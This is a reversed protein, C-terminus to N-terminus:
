TSRGQPLCVVRFGVVLSAVVPRCHDRRASRCDRPPLDWSGGRLLRRGEDGDKNRQGDGAEQDDWASGDPPAGEYDSHWRDLCWEWVNGHMDYLGWDNAPFTKIVTTENRPRGKPGKFYSYTADYNALEPTITDGFAFPSITRARCAYEWQAESPLTYMLGTRQSLRQCFEMADLWRVGEVPRQDSEPRKGFRSPNPSLKRGWREGEREQWQAVVRWQEQTIPTQGMFFSALEVEHRPGEDAYRELEGDPSGMLFRGAPIEVLTLSTQPQLTEFFAWGQGEGRRVTFAGQERIVRATPFSIRELLLEELGATSFTITQPTPIPLLLATNFEEDQFALAEFGQPQIAAQSRLRAAFDQYVAGPLKAIRDATATAFSLLDAALDPDQRRLTQRVGPDTLAALFSHGTALSDWRRELLESVLRVVTVTDHDSLDARLAEALDPVIEYLLLERDEVGRVAGLPRLVGSLLVEVLALPGVGRPGLTAEKILRMVPLTLM